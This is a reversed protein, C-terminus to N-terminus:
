GTTDVLKDTCSAGPFDKRVHWRVCTRMRYRGNRQLSVAGASATATAATDPSSAPLRADGVSANNLVPIRVPDVVTVPGPAAAAQAPACLGLVLVGLVARLAPRCSM